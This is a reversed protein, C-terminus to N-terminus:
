KRRKRRRRRRRRRRGPVCLDRIVLNQVTPGLIKLDTTYFKSRTLRRSGLIKPRSRSKQFIYAGRTVVEVVVVVVVVQGKKRKSKV